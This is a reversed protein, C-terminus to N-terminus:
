VYILISSFVHITLSHGRISSWLVVQWYTRATLSFASSSYYVPKYMCMFAVVEVGDEGTYGCRTVRCSSVGCVDVTASSMFPLSSLGIEALLSVVEPGPTTLLCLLPSTVMHTHLWLQIIVRKKCLIPVSPIFICTCVYMYM